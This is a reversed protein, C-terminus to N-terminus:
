ILGDDAFSFYSEDTVIIHDLVKIDLIKGAEMVKQTIARDQDSPRLSGSPHNHSLIIASANAKLALQFIIRVDVVTSTIGGMSILAFGLVTHGAGLLLINFAERHHIFENYLPRLAEYGDRSSLVKDPMTIDKRKTYNVTIENATKYLVEPEEVVDTPQERKYVQKNSFLYAIPFFEREEEQEQKKERTKPMGWVVFAEAGKVISYGDKKWAEFTRFTQHGDKKYVCEILAQNLTEFQGVKVLPKLPQSIEKLAQRRMKAKSEYIQATM